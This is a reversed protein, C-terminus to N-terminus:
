TPIEAAMSELFTTFNTTEIVLSAKSMIDKWRCFSLDFKIDRVENKIRDIVKWGYDIKYPRCILKKRVEKMLNNAFDIQFKIYDLWQSAMPISYLHYSYRPSINLNWYFKKPTNEVKLRKIKKCHDIKQSPLPVIKHTKNETWGWSLYKDAIEIEHDQLSSFLGTGFHGGHQSIILKTGEEVCFASWYKFGDNSVHANDTFIVKPKKPFKTLSNLHMSDYAELYVNPIQQFILKNLLEYFGCKNENHLIQQRVETNITCEKTLDKPDIFFPFQALSLSLKIINLFSFYRSIFTIKKFKNPFLNEIKYNYLLNGLLVKLIKYNFKRSLYKKPPIIETNVYEFPLEKFYEIIRSYLYQNYEDSVYWNTFQKFDLPVWKYYDLPLIWTNTVKGSRIAQQISLYRDYFIEIFFRLWPGIIIRWYRLSHNVRHIENLKDSLLRLYEEYVNNLYLFDAYLKKRDNWHYPLVEYDLKSWVHRQDYLRCWEGLFLIKQSKDWFSQLATTALFM